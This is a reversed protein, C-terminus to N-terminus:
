IEWFRVQICHTCGIVMGLRSSALDPVGVEILGTEAFRKSAVFSNAGSLVMGDPRDYVVPGLGMVGSGFVDSRGSGVM